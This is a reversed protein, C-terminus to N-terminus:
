WEEILTNLWEPWGDDHVSVVAEAAKIAEVIPEALRHCDDDIESIVPEFGGDPLARLRCDCEILSRLDNRMVPIAMRLAAEANKRLSQQAESIRREQALDAQLQEFYDGLDSM